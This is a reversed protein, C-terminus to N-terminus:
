RCGPARVAVDVALVGGPAPGTFLGRGREADVRQAVQGHGVEVARRHRSEVLGGAPPDPVDDGLVGPHQLGDLEQVGAPDALDAGQQM